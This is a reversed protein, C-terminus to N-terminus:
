GIVGAINLKKQGRRWGVVAREMDARGPNEEGPGCGRSGVRRVVILELDAM